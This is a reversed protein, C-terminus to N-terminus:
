LFIQMREERHNKLFKLVGRYILVPFLHMAQLPKLVGFM